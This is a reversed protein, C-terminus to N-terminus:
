GAVTVRGAERVAKRTWGAAQEYAYAVQLLTAEDWHAAM